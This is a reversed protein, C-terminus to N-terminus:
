VRGVAQGQRSSGNSGFIWGVEVLWRHISYRGYLIGIATADGFSRSNCVFPIRSPACHRSFNGGICQVLLGLCVSRGAGRTRPCGTGDWSNRCASAQRGISQVDIRGVPGAWVRCPLAPRAEDLLTRPFILFDSLSGSKDFFGRIEPHSALITGRPTRRLFETSASTLAGLRFSDPYLTYITFSCMKHAFGVYRGWRGSALVGSSSARLGRRPDVRRRSPSRM